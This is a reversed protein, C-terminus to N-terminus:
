NLLVPFCGSFREGPDIADQSYWSGGFVFGDRIKKKGKNKTM